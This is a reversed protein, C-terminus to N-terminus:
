APLGSGGCSEGHFAYIYGDGSGVYVSGDLGVAPSSDVWGGTQYRWKIHGTAQDLAYFYSDRSGVYVTGDAGVAPTSYGTQSELARRWAEEGTEAHLAYFPGAHLAYSPGYTGFYVLGNAGVAPKAWTMADLPHTWKRTGNNADLALMKGDAADVPVFITSGNASLAPSAYGSGGIDYRWKFNGTDCFLAYVFGSKVAFYVMGDPSVAPGCILEDARYTWKVSGSDGDLAHLRTAYACAVYVTRDAGLAPTSYGCDGLRQHWRLAGNLADLAHIGLKSSAYVMGNSGVAPRRASEGIPYRWIQTGDDSRLAYIYQTSYSAAFITGDAGVVPSALDISGGTNFQWKLCGTSSSSGVAIAQSQAAAQLVETNNIAQQARMRSAFALAVGGLMVVAAFALIGYFVPQRSCRFPGTARRGVLPVYM